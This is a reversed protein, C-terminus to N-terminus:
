SLINGKKISSQLSRLDLKRHLLLLQLLLFLLRIGQLIQQHFRRVRVYRKAFNRLLLNQNEGFNSCFLPCVFVM